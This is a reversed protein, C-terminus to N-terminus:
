LLQFLMALFFGIVGGVGGFFFAILATVVNENCSDARQDGCNDTSQESQKQLLKCMKSDWFDDFMQDDFYAPHTDDSLTNYYRMCAKIGVTNEIMEIIQKRANKWEGDPEEGLVNPWRSQLIDWWIAPWLAKPTNQLRDIVAGVAAESGATNKKEDM